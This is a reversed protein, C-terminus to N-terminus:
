KFFSIAMLCIQIAAMIILIISFLTTARNLNDIKHGLVIIKDVLMPTQITEKWESMSEVFSADEQSLEKSFPVNAYRHNKQESMKNLISFNLYHKVPQDMKM